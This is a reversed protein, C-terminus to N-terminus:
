CLRGNAFHTAQGACRCQDDLQWEPRLQAAFCHCSRLESLTTLTSEPSLGAFEFSFFQGTRGCGMETEDLILVAGTEKAIAQQSTSNESRNHSVTTM